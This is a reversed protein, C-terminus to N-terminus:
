KAVDGGVNEAASLATSSGSRERQAGEQEASPTGASRPGAAGAAWLFGAALSREWLM